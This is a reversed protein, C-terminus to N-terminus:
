FEILVPVSTSRSSYETWWMSFEYTGTVSPTFTWTYTDGDRSWLSNAGYPNAGGSVGWNGTFSTEPDGNDIIDDAAIDSSYSLLLLLSLFLLAYPLHTGSKKM